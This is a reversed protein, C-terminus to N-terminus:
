HFEDKKRLNQHNKLILEIPNTNEQFMIQYENMWIQKPIKPVKELHNRYNKLHIRSVMPPVTAYSNESARNDMSTWLFNDEFLLRDYTRIRMSTTLQIHHHLNTM